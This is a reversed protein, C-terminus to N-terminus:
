HGAGDPEFLTGFVEFSTLDLCDSGGHNKGTIHLRVFRFGEGPVPNISFNHTVFGRGKLDSNNRRRDVPQWSCGDNSVELVWPKPRYDDQYSRISYSTPTVRRGGKFDYCLWSDETGRSCFESDSGLEVAHKPELSCTVSSATVEVIGKEHVNGGFKQTLHAIIGRLPAAKDYRFEKPSMEKLLRQEEQKLRTVEDSLAEVAEATARSNIQSRLEEVASAVEKVHNTADCRRIENRLARDTENVRQECAQSIDDLRGEVSAAIRVVESQMSLQRQLASLQREIDLFKEQMKEMVEGQKDVRGMLGEVVSHRQQTVGAIDFHDYPSKALEANEEIQRADDKGFIRSFLLDLVDLSIESAILYKELLGPHQKFLDLRECLANLDGGQLLLRRM